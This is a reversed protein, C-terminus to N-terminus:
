GVLWAISAIKLSRMRSFLNDPELKKPWSDDIRKGPVLSIQMGPFIAHLANMRLNEDAIPATEAIAMIAVFFCM